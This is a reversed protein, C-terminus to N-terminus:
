FTRGEKQGAGGQEQPGVSERTAEHDYHGMGRGQPLESGAKRGLANQAGEVSSWRFSICGLDDDSDPTEFMQRIRRQIISLAERLKEPEPNEIYKRIDAPVPKTERMSFLFKKRKPHQITKYDTRPMIEITLPHYMYKPVKIITGDKMKKSEVGEKPIYVASSPSLYFGFIADKVEM